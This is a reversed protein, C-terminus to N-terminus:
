REARESFSYVVAGGDLGVREVGAAHRIWQLARVEDLAPRSAMLEASVGLLEIARRNCVDVNGSADVMVIGIETRDLVTDVLASKAALRAACERAREEALLLRQQRRKLLSIDVHAFCGIGDPRRQEVVRVWRDGTLPLEFPEGAFAM